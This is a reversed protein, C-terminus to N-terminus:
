NPTIEGDRAQYDSFQNILPSMDGNIDTFASPVKGVIMTEALCLSTNVDTSVTYFPVVAGVRVKVSLMIRHLTQNIGASVFDNYLETEVYSIPLLRFEVDPGRGSFVAGGLLTGMPIRIIQMTERELYDTVRNTIAAKLRNMAVMDTTLSAVQGDTGQRITVMDNYQVDEEKIIDLVADNINRTAVIQSQYAAVTEIMPRMREEVALAAALLVAGLAILKIARLKKKKVRITIPRM